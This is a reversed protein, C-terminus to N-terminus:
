DTRNTTAVGTNGDLVCLVEVTRDDVRTAQTARSRAFRSVLSQEVTVTVQAQGCVHELAREALALPSEDAAPEAVM